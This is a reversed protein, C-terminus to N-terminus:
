HRVLDECCDNMVTETKHTLVMMIIIWMVLLMLVLM